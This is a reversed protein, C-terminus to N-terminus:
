HNQTKSTSSIQKLLITVGIIILIVPWYVRLDYYHLHHLKILLFTGGLTIFVMGTEWNDKYFIFFMGIGILLMQWSFIFHPIYLMGLKALLLVTGVGIMLIATVLQGSNSNHQNSM